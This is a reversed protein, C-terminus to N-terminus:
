VEVEGVEGAVTEPPLAMARVESEPQITIGAGCVAYRWGPRCERRGHQEIWSVLVHLPVPVPVTWIRLPTVATTM